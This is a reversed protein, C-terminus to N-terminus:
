LEVGGVKFRRIIVHSVMAVGLIVFVPTYYSYDVRLFYLAPFVVSSISIPLGIFFSKSKMIDFRALRLLGALLFFALAFVRLWHLPQIMAGFVAPAVGFSVLDALSDLHMGFECARKMKRAVYGDLLDFVFAVPLLVMAITFSRYIILVVALFGSLANALTFIDPPKLIERFHYGAEENAM